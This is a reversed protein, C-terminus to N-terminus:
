RASRRLVDPDKIEIQLRALSISGADVAERLVRNVTARSTGALAALEEQRIRVVTGPTCGGYVEALEVLRRLVRTEAPAYHAELREAALRTVSAALTDILSRNVSSFARRLEAFVDQDLVLTEAPELAVATADRRPTPALLALEGFVSGPPLVQLTAVDGQSTAVRIAVRGKALLHITDAPDGQHFVVEDTRFRRRRASSLVRRREAESLGQLLPWEVFTL